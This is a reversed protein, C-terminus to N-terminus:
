NCGGPVGIGIIMEVGIGVGEVVGFTDIKSQENAKVLLDDKHM